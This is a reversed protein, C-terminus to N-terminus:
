STTTASIQPILQSLMARFCATETLSPSRRHILLMAMDAFCVFHALLQPRDLGSWEPAGEAVKQKIYDLAIKVDDRCLPYSPDLLRNLPYDFQIQSPITPM